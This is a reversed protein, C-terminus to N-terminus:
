QSFEHILLVASFDISLIDTNLWHLLYIQIDSQNICCEYYALIGFILSIFINSVSIINAGSKGIYRGFLGCIIASWLPLILISIYM